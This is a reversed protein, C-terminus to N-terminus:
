QMGANEIGDVQEVVAALVHTLDDKTFELRQRQLIDDGITSRNNTCLDRITSIREEDACDMKTLLYHLAHTEINQEVAKVTNGM